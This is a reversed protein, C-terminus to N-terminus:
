VRRIKTFNKVKIDANSFRHTTVDLTLEFQYQYEQARDAMEDAFDLNKLSGPYVMLNVVFDYIGDYKLGM